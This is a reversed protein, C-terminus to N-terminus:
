EVRVASRVRNLTPVEVIVPISLGNIEITIDIRALDILDYSCMLFRTSFGLVPKTQSRMRALCQPPTPSRVSLQNEVFVENQAM